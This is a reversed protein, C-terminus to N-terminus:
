ELYIINSNYEDENYEVYILKNGSSSWKTILVQTDELIKISNEKEVNYIYLGSEDEISSKLNYVVM